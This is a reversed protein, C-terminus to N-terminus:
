FPGISMRTWVRRFSPKKAKYLPVTVETNWRRQSVLKLSPWDERRCQQRSSAERRQKRHRLASLIGTERGRAAAFQQQPPWPQPQLRQALSDRHTALRDCELRASVENVTSINLTRMCPCYPAFSSLRRRSTARSIHFSQPMRFPTM